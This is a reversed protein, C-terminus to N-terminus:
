IKMMFKVPLYEYHREKTFLDGYYDYGYIAEIHDMYIGYYYLFYFNNLEDDEFVDYCKNCSYKPEVNTGLNETEHCPIVDYELSYNMTSYYLDYIYNQIDLLYTYICKTEGDEKLLSFEHKCRSCVYKGDEM